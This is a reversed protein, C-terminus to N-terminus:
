NHEHKCEGKQLKEKASFEVDAFHDSDLIYESNRWADSVMREADELSDASVSVQRKLTETITVIYEKM